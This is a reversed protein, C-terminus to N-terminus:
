IDHASGQERQQSPTAMDVTNKVSGFQPEPRPREPEYQYQAQLVSLIAPDMAPDVPLGTLMSLAIKRSHPLTHQLTPLQSAIQATMDALLEPYVARLADVDEPTIVGHAIRDFVGHPDEVAAAARAFSGM